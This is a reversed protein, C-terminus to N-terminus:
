QFDIPLLGLLRAWAQNMVLNGMVLRPKHPVDRHNM